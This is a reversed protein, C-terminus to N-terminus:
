FQNRRLSIGLFLSVMVTGSVVPQLLPIQRRVFMYMDDEPEVECLLCLPSCDVRRQLVRTRMPIYSKWVQWITHSAEPPARIQWLSSWNLTVGSGLAPRMEKDEQVEDFLAVVLISKAVEETFLANVGNTDWVKGGEMMLSNVHM